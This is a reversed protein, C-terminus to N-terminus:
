LAHRQMMDHRLDQPQSLRVDEAQVSLWGKCATCAPRGQGMSVLGAM